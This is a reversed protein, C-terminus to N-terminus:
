MMGTNIGLWVVAEEGSGGVTLRVFPVPLELLGVTEEGLGGDGRCRYTLM